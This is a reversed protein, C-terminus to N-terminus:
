VKAEDEDTLTIAPLPSPVNWLGIEVAIASRRSEARVATASKLPSPFASTMILAIVPPRRGSIARSRPLASPERTTLKADVLYLVEFLRGATETESTFPFPLGSIMMARPPNGVSTNRSPESWGMEELALKGRMNPLAGDIAVASISPSPCGSRTRVSGIPLRYTSNPAPSPVNRARGGDEGEAM